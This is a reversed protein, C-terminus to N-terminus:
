AKLQYPRYMWLPCACATCEAVALRDFGVCEQCFAKIAARPSAKGSWCSTLLRQSSKPSAALRRARIKEIKQGVSLNELNTM